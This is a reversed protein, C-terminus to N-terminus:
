IDDESGEFEPLLKVRNYCEEPTLCCMDFKYKRPFNLNNTPNAYADSKNWFLYLYFITTNTGKDYEIRYKGWYNANKREYETALILAM